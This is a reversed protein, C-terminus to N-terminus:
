WTVPAPMGRRVVVADVGTLHRWGTARAEPGLWTSREQALLTRTASPVADGPDIPHARLTRCIPLIERLVRAPDSDEFAFRATPLGVRLSTRDRRRDGRFTTRDSHFRYGDLEVVLVGEVILDVEGVGPVFPAVAVALGARRLHLRVMTEIPSRARGDVDCALARARSPRSRRVREVVADVFSSGRTRALHDLAVVISDYPQCLAACAAAQELPVIRGKGVPPGTEYHLRTGVPVIPRHGTHRRVALHPSVERVPVEPDILRLASVCTLHANALVAVVLASPADPLAYSGRGIQRLDGRAVMRALHHRSTGIEVFRAAGGLHRIRDLTTM